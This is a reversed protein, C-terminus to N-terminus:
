SLWRTTSSSSGGACEGVRSWAEEIGSCTLAIAEFSLYTVDKEVKM